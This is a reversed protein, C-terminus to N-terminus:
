FGVLDLSVKLYNFHHPFSIFGQQLKAGSIKLSTLCIMMDQVYICKDKVMVRVYVYTSACFLIINYFEAIDFKTIKFGSGASSCHLLSQM